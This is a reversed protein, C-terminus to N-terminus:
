YAALAKQLRKNQLAFYPIPTQLNWMLFVSNHFRGRQLLGNKLIKLCQRKRPEKEADKKTQPTKAWPLSTSSTCHRSVSWIVPNPLTKANEHRWVEEEIDEFAEIKCVKKLISKAGRENKKWLEIKQGVQKKPCFFRPAASGLENQYRCKKVNKGPLRLNSFEQARPHTLDQTRTTTTAFFPRAATARLSKADKEPTKTEVGNKCAYSTTRKFSGVEEQRTKRKQACGEKSQLWRLGAGRIKPM